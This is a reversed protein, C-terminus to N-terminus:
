GEKERGILGRERIILERIKIDSLEERSDLDGDAQENLTINYKAFSGEAFVM